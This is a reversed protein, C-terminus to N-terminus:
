AIWVPSAATLPLATTDGWQDESELRDDPRFLLGIAVLIIALPSSLMNYFFSQLAGVFVVSALMISVPDHRHSVRYMAWILWVLYLGLGVFGHSFMAFFVHGHTGVSPSFPNDSPRPGGWGFIPSEVAGDWAEQYIGARAGADPESLRGSVIAGIPTLAMLVAILFIGGALLKLPATRGNLFSRVAVVAFIAAVSLWLGRNVSLIMPPVGILLGVVGLRRRRPDPSYLTAAVFFPTLLGVNGGWENTFAFLTAPRPIAVGFIDQVQAFRPRVLNGVFDNTAISRPLVLSALTVNIRVNPLLLGLYGGIIAWVWYLAIWDIFTTRLVRRENYVYYALGLATLYACFRFGFTMLRTVRDLRVVSVAAWLVYVAFLSIAPPRELRPRLLAWVALPFVAMPWIFEATGMLWFLPNLAFLAYVIWGPRFL